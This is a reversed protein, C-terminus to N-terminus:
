YSEQNVMNGVRISAKGHSQIQVLIRFNDGEPAM